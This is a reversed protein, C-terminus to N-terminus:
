NDSMVINKSLKYSGYEYYKFLTTEIVCFLYEIICADRIYFARGRIEMHVQLSYRRCERNGHPVYRYENGEVFIRPSPLLKM